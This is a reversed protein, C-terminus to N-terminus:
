MLSMRTPSKVAGGVVQGEEDEDTAVAVLVLV